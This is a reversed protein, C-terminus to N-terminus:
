TKWSDKAHFAAYATYVRQVRGTSAQLHDECFRYPFKAKGMCGPVLCSEIQLKDPEIAKKKKSKKSKKHKDEM